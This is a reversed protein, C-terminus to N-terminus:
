GEDNWKWALTGLAVLQTLLLLTDVGGEAVDTQYIPQRRELRTLIPSVQESAQLVQGDAYVQWCNNLASYALRAGPVVALSYGQKLRGALEDCDTPKITPLEPTMNYKSETMFRGFWEVLKQEDDLQNLLTKLRGVASLTIEGPHESLVLAPDAYRMDESLNDAIYDSFHTIVEAASPARFGVSFTMCDDMGIGNHALGPPLYLMDGPELVWEDSVHFEALIKLDNHAMLPTQATCRQGVQWKRRGRAQLLFVDYQDYHPGVGGGPRAYSVMIDDLRWGPIFDFHSLLQAIEPLWHDVAQVLLTWNDIPLNLFAEESFPGHWVQWPEAEDDNVVLRAEVTDEMALGALEEPSVPSQFAPLAQRILLPRQQWYERLFEAASINGLLTNM